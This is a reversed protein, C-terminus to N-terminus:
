LPFNYGIEYIRKLSINEFFHIFGWDLLAIWTLILFNSPVYKQFIDPYLELDVWFYPRGGCKLSGFVNLDGMFIHTVFKLSGLYTVISSKLWESINSDSWFINTVIFCNLWELFKPWGAFKHDGGVNIGSLRQLGYKIYFLHYVVVSLLTNINNLM